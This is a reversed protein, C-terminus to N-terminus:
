KSFKSKRKARLQTGCCPCIIGEYLIYINCATCRKTGPDYRKKESKYRECIGRCTM